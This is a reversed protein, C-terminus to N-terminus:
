SGELFGLDKRWINRIGANDGIFDGKCLDDKIERMAIQFLYQAKQLM